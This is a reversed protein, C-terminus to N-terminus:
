ESDRRPNPIIIFGGSFRRRPTRAPRRSAPRLPEQPAILARAASFWPTRPPSQPAMSLRPPYEGSLHGIQEISHANEKFYLPTHKLLGDDITRQIHGQRDPALTSDETRASLSTISTSQRFHTAYSANKHDIPKNGNLHRNGAMIIFSSLPNHNPELLSISFRARSISVSLIFPGRLSQHAVGLIRGRLTRTPLSLHAAM